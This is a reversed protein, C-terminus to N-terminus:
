GVKKAAESDGNKNTKKLPRIRLSRNYHLPMCYMDGQLTTVGGEWKNLGTYPGGITTIEPDGGDNSPIIRLVSSGKLPIGYVTGDIASFGNQWKNNRIPELDRLNPGISRVQACLFAVNPDSHM